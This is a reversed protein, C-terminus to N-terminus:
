ADREEIHTVVVFPDIRPDAQTVNDHVWAIAVTEAEDEDIALVAVEGSHVPQDGGDVSSRIEYGVLWPRPQEEIGDILVTHTNTFNPLDIVENGEEFSCTVTPQPNVGDRELQVHVYTGNDLEVIVHDITTDTATGSM